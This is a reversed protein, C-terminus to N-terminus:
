FYDNTFVVFYKSGKFSPIKMPGVLDFHILYLIKEICHLSNKPFREQHQRGVLYDKCM